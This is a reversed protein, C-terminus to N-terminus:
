FTDNKDSSQSRVYIQIHTTLKNSKAGSSPGKLTSVGLTKKINIYMKYTNTHFVSNNDIVM